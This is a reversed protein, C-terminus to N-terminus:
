KGDQLVIKLPVHVVKNGPNIVSQNVAKIDKRLEEKVAQVEEKNEKRIARIESVIPKIQKKISVYGMLGLIATLGLITNTIM